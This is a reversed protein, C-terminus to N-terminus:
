YAIRALTQAAHPFRQREILCVSTKKEFAGIGEDNVMPSYNNGENYLPKNRARSLYATTTRKICSLLILNGV